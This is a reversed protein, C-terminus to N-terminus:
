WEKGVRREESRVAVKAAAAVRTTARPADIEALAAVAIANERPIDIAPQDRAAARRMTCLRSVRAATAPAVCTPSSAGIRAPATAVRVGLRDLPLTRVVADVLLPPPRGRSEGPRRTGARTRPRAAARVLTGTPVIFSATRITPPQATRTAANRTAHTRPQIPIPSLGHGGVLHEARTLLRMVAARAAPHLVM